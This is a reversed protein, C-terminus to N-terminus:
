YCSTGCESAVIDKAKGSTTNNLEEGLILAVDSGKLDVSGAM